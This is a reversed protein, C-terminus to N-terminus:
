FRMMIKTHKTLIEVDFSDFLNNIIEFLYGIKDQLQRTIEDFMGELFTNSNPFKGGNLKKILFGFMLIQSYNDIFEDFTQKSVLHKKIFEFNDKLIDKKDTLEEKLILTKTAMEKVLEDVSKIPKNYIYSIFTNLLNNFKEVNEKIIEIKNNRVEGIRVNQKEEGNIYLIFHLYDTIILNPFANKYKTFQEKYIKDSLNKGIDKTEVFGIYHEKNKILIDPRIRKNEPKPENITSINEDVSEIM